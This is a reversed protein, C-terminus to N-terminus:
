VKAGDWTPTITFKKEQIEHFNKIRKIKLTM